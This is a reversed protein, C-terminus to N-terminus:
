GLFNASIHPVGVSAKSFLWSELMIGDQRHCQNVHILLSTTFFLMQKHLFRTCSCRSKGQLLRQWHSSSVTVHQGGDLYASSSYEVDDRKKTGM